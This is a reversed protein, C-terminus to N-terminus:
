SVSIGFTVVLTPGIYSQLSSCWEGSAVKTSINPIGRDWAEAYQVRRLM